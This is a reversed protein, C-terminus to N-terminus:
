AEPTARKAPTGSAAGSGTRSRAAGTGATVSRSGGTRRRTVRNAPPAAKGSWAAEAADRGYLHWVLLTSMVRMRRDGLLGHEDLTAMGDPGLLARELHHGDDETLSSLDVTGAASMSRQLHLLIKGARADIRAPFAVELGASLPLVKREEGDAPLIEDLPQFPM